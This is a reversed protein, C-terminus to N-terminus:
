RETVLRLLFRKAGLVADEITHVVEACAVETQPGGRMVLLFSQTHKSDSISVFRDDCNDVHFVFSRTGNVRVIASAPSMGNRKLLAQLADMRTLHQGPLQAMVRAQCDRLWDKYKSEDLLDKSKCVYCIDAGSAIITVSDESVCGVCYKPSSSPNMM